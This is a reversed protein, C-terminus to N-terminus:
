TTPQKRPSGKIATVSYIGTAAGAVVLSCQVYRDKGSYGIKTVANAGAAGALDAAAEAETGLLVTDACSTLANTASGSKVVPTVTIGTTTQAGSAIIFEVSGFGAMDVIQGTKTGTTGAAAPSLVRVPKIINHLDKM